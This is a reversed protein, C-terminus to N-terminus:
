GQKKQSPERSRAVAFANIDAFHDDAQQVTAHVCSRHTAGYIVVRGHRFDTTVRVTWDGASSFFILTQVCHPIGTSSHLSDCGTHGQQPSSLTELWYPKSRKSEFPNAVLESRRLVALEM